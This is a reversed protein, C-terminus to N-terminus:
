VQQVSLIYTTGERYFVRLVTGNEYHQWIAPYASSPPEIPYYDDLYWSTSITYPIFTHNFTFDWYVTFKWETTFSYEYRWKWEGEDFDWYQVYNTHLKEYTSLETREGCTVPVDMSLTDPMSNVLFWIGVTGGTIIGVVLAVKCATFVADWNIPKRPRTKKYPTEM